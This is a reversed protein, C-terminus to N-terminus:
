GGGEEVMFLKWTEVGVVGHTRYNLATMGCILLDGDQIGEDVMM